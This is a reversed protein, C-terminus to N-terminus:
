SKIAYVESIPIHWTGGSKYSGPYLGKRIRRQITVPNMGLMKALETATYYGISPMGPLEPQAEKKMNKLYEKLYLNEYYFLADRKLTRRECESKCLDKKENYVKNAQKHASVIYRRAEKDNMFEMIENRTLM